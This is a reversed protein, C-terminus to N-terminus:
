ERGGREAGPLWWDVKEELNAQKLLKM